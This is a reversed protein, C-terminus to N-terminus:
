KKMYISRGNTMMDKLDNRSSIYKFRNNRIGDPRDGIIYYRVDLDPANVVVQDSISMVEGDELMEGAKELEALVIIRNGTTYVEQIELNAEQNVDAEVMLTQEEKDGLESPWDVDVVPVEVTEEVMVVRVKPVEITRTTTTVDVDAWEVDYTPLSGRDAQVDVDVSPMEGESTQDVDCAFFSFAALACISLIRFKM